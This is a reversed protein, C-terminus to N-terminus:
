PRTAEIFARMPGLEHAWFLTLGKSQAYELNAIAFVGSMVAAPVCNASGLEKDWTEAKIAADNNIRKYSNTESNSVKCEVPMLRGDWLRVPIDARRTGVLTENCFHGPPPAQSINHIPKTPAATFGCEVTLFEKVADEQSKKGQSRRWTEVQRFARMAASALVAAEREAETPARNETVWPFRERDLALLITEVLRRARDADKKLLTPAITTDALTQLDDVSIPPSALYRAAHILQPDGMVEPALEHLRELDVTLELLTEVAARDTEYFSLYQELPEDIREARFADRAANADAELRAKPWVPPLATM